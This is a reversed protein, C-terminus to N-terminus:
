DDSKQKQRRRAARKKRRAASVAALHAAFTPVLRYMAAATALGFALGFLSGGLLYPLLLRDIFALLVEWHFDRTGEALGQGVMQMSGSLEDGTSQLADMEANKRGLIIRGVAISSGAIVPFTLPNSVNAFVLSAVMNGRMVYALAPALIYHLGFFPTFSIFTGAFVGRAIRYRGDDVRLFRYM